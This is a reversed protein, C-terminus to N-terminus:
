PSAPASRRVNCRPVNNHRQEFTALLAVARAEPDPCAEWSFTMAGRTCPSDRGAIHDKLRSQITTKGGAAHGYYIVEGDRYLAYVGGTPPARKINMETFAIPQL